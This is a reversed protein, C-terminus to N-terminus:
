EKNGHTKYSPCRQAIPNPITKDPAYAQPPLEIPLHDSLVALQTIKAVAYTRFAETPQGGKATEWARLLLKGTRPNKGLRYPHILRDVGDYEIILPTGLTTAAALIDIPNAMSIISVPQRQDSAFATEQHPTSEAASNENRQSVVDVGIMFMAVVALVEAVFDRAAFARVALFAYEKETLRGKDFMSKAILVAVDDYVHFWQATLLVFWFLPPFDDIFLNLLFTVVFSLTVTSVAYFILPALFGVILYVPLTIM